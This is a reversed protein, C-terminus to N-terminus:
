NPAHPAFDVIRGASQSTNVSVAVAIAIATPAENAPVANGRNTASRSADPLPGDVANSIRWDNTTATKIRGAAIPNPAAKGSANASTVGISAMASRTPVM